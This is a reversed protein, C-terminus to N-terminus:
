INIILWGGGGVDDGTEEVIVILDLLTQIKGSICHGYLIVQDCSLRMKGAAKVDGYECVPRSGPLKRSFTASLSGKGQLNEWEIIHGELFSFSLYPSRWWCRKM